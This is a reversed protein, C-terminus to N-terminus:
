GTEPDSSVEVPRSRDKLGNFKSVHSAGWVEEETHKLFSLNARNVEESGGGELESHM